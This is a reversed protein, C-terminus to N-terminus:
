DVWDAVFVNTEGAVSGQRNSAFVIKKGDLSVMPFGDFEGTYTVRELGSGDLNCLFLDFERGRPDLHNSAFIALLRDHHAHPHEHPNEEDGDSNQREVRRIGIRLFLNCILGFRLRVCRM